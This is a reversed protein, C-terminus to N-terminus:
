TCAKLITKMEDSWELVEVDHDEIITDILKTIGSPSLCVMLPQLCRYVQLLQPTLLSNAVYSFSSVEKSSGNGYLLVSIARQVLCIKPSSKKVIMSVLLCLLPKCQESKKVLLKLLSMLTPLTQQLELWVTEWSFCKVAEVNDRLISDHKVSPLLKMEERIIRAISVIAAKSCPQSSMVAATM